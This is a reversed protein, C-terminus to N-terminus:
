DDNDNGELEKKSQEIFYEFDKVQPIQPINLKKAIEGGCIYFPKEGVLQKVTECALELAKKLVVIEHDKQPCFKETKLKEISDYINEYEFLKVYIEDMKESNLYDLVTENDWDNLLWDINKATLRYNLKEKNM